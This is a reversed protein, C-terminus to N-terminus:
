ERQAMRRIQALDLDGQAGWGRKGKPIDPRFREYLSFGVDNLADPDYAVALEEMAARVDDLADGFKGDLYRQVSEPTVPRGKNTSRLGDETQTAPVERGLLPVAVEEGVEPEEREGPDRPSYIGLRRGKSQATLGAVGKGLTLAADRDHGLREAVVAAWLTLVPARNVTVTDTAM